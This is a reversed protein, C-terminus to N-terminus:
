PSFPLICVGWSVSGTLWKLHKNVKHMCTHTRAHSTHTWAHTVCHEWTSLVVVSNALGDTRGPTTISSFGNLIVHVSFFRLYTKFTEKLNSQKSQAHWHIRVHIKCTWHTYNYNFSSTFARRGCHLWSPGATGTEVSAPLHHVISQYWRCQSHEAYFWASNLSM